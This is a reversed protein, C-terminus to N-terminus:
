PAVAARMSRAGGFEDEPRGCARSPNECRTATPHDASAAAQACRRSRRRSGSTRTEPRKAKEIWDIFGNRYFSALGEFLRRAAADSAIAAAIDPAMTDLQPGETELVVRVANGPGVEPDRCWSPGLDLVNVDDAISLVGRVHRGEITGRIYHRDKPGWRADPDESLRIRVGGGRGRAEVVTTFRMPEGMSPMTGAAM